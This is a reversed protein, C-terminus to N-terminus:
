SGSGTLAKFWPPYALHLKHALAQIGGIKHLTKSFPPQRWENEKYTAIACHCIQNAVISVITDWPTNIVIGEYFTGVAQFLLYTMDIIMSGM